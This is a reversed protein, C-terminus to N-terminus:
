PGQGGSPTCSRPDWPQLAEVPATPSQYDSSAASPRPAPALTRSPTAATRPSAPPKALAFGTGTVVTVTAGKAALSPNYDLVAFGSIKQEVAMAAAEDTPNGYVVVTESHTGVPTTDGTGTVRFGLAQLSAATQAAQNAVGTGNRVSVAVSGPTPLSGGTLTNTGPKAGLFRDIVQQDQPQATFEVDGYNGGKYIYSGFNTVVVPLTLQPAGFPNVSHFTLLLHALGLASLGSDVQLDPAVASALREDTIPNGLGRKATTSALVRLFEHDRRIRALDSQAEYPWSHPDGSTVGPGKYQLHRARVVALAQFGSLLHCGPVTVRLGSYADFVPMPFYMRVGGLAGVVGAFTDFNLEVYHQVPIGFDERIANVLQGPGEYLAADIKNAGEARANPVFLDRPISLISLRHAAPDVHLIMVVDSNVGTVGQDCLGFAPNQVKLACRTTSGILLINQTGSETGATPAASLGRIKVRHIESNLHLNYTIVGAILLVVVLLVSLASRFLLRRRRRRRTAAPRTVTPAVAPESM